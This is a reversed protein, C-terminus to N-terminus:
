QQKKNKSSSDSITFMGFIITLVLYTWFGGYIKFGELYTSLLYLKIPTLIILFPFMLLLVITALTSEVAIAVCIAIVVFSVLYSIAFMLLSAVILTTTSDITIYNHFYTSGVWFILITLALNLIRRM